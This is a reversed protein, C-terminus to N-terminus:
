NSSLGRQEFSWTRIIELVDKSKRMEPPFPAFPEALRVIRIAADDLVKYGSSDLVQIDKVTGNPYMAVMLRLTGHIGRKRAAEPYNLNGIRTVKDIWSQVYWADSAKLTSAATVRMVRPRKAYAQQQADLRAELSAIELSRQMLSKHNQKQQAKQPKDQQAPAKQTRRGTTTVTHRAESRKQPKPAAPQVPQTKHM